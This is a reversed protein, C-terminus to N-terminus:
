GKVRFGLGEWVFFSVVNGSLVDSLIIYFHAGGYAGDVLERPKATAGGM